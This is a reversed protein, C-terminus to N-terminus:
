QMFGSTGLWRDLLVAGYVNGAEEQRRLPEAAYREYAAQLAAVDVFRNINQTRRRIVEELLGRERRLLQWRFNPALNAKHTRWQVERPLTGEMARRLIVRTWGQSLKQSSPLALCFEILRRDFFPYRPELHWAAAAKDALALAYPYLPSSLTARHGQRVTLNWESAENRLARLRAALELRSAFHPHIITEEPRLPSDCRHFQRYLLRAPEIVLPKLCFEKLLRRRSVGLQRSVATTERGLTAWRGSWALETLRSLGHCVTTDGDVGDLFVRVNQQRAAKYLGWHMYLNPAYFAEDEHWLVRDLEELPSMQDACVYHSRLGGMSVVSHIYRREDIKAQETEPLSPFIASFTDLRPTGVGGMLDRATCAISSSDLGGSLTSGVPYASRLRCRVAEVFRDRFAEAYEEDSKLRLERCPDPSWYCQLRLEEKGVVVSHAAPLRFIQQYFTISPDLYFGVLHYAVQLENLERPVGAVSFLAKIESAVAFLRGPLHYYYFPKVGMPDRAGFLEQRRGDWLLFAFDGILKEPCAEGWRQYAALIIESDSVEAPPREAIGLVSILEARNDIRADATIVIEGTASALPLCEQLSEPTTQLMRHGMGVSGEVWIGGGDPGRHVLRAAMQELTFRNVPRQDPHHVGCIASM